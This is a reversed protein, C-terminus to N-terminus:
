RTHNFSSNSLYRNTDMFELDVGMGQLRKAIKLSYLITQDFTLTFSLCVKSFDDTQKPGVFVAKSQQLQGLLESLKVAHSTPAMDAFPRAFTFYNQNKSVSGVLVRIAVRLM